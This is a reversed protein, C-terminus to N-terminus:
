LNYVGRTYLYLVYYTWVFLNFFLQKYLYQNQYLKSQLYKQIM